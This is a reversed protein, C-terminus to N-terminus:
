IKSDDALENENAEEMVLRYGKGPVSKIRQQMKLNSMTKRLRTLNVQLANEDIYETTDWLALNLEEKEVLEEGHRLSIALLKGQNRPLIVSQNGYYLTYTQCDLLFGKGELLNQRGEYRKLVNAVRALLREKRCPKTLYEDAGLDLAHLEDKMQDRSTLILIPIASKRKVEKCISFGSIEPLNLDLLLLNPNRAFIDETVDEFHDVAEVVYGAKTLMQTLEDRILLEDEVLVIKKM